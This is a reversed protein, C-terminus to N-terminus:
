VPKDFTGGEANAVEQASTCAASGILGLTKPLSYRSPGTPATMERLCPWQSVGRVVDRCFQSPRNSRDGIVGPTQPIPFAPAGQDLRQENMKRWIASRTNRGVGAGARTTLGWTRMVDAWRNKRPCNTISITSRRRM